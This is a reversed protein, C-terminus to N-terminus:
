NLSALYRRLQTLRQKVTEADTANPTLRLYREYDTAAAKFRHQVMLLSGRDRIYAGCAPDVMLICDLMEIASGYDMVRAYIGYLNALVRILIQETTVAKLNAPDLSVPQSTMGSILEACGAEDMLKGGNFPDIFLERDNEHHKVLFHFPTGVGQLPFGIRNGVELYIVSLTIPIGTRRDIVENLYSNRPDYYDRTNGEFGMEDFLVSNISDLVSESDAAQACLKAVRECISDIERHYRATDLNPYRDAAIAMVAAFLNISRNDSAVVRAFHGTSKNELAM